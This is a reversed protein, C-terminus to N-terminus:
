RIGRSKKILRGAQNVHLTPQQKSELLNPAKIRSIIKAELDKQITDSLLFIKPDIGFWTALGIPDMARVSPILLIQIEKPASKFYVPDSFLSDETRFLKKRQPDYIIEMGKESESKNLHSLYITNEPNKLSELFTNDCVILKFKEEGVKIEAFGKGLREAVEPLTLILDYDSKNKLGQATTNYKIMAGEPDLDKLYPISVTTFREPKQGYYIAARKTQHDFCFEYHTGKDMAPHFVIHNSPNSVEVLRNNKIDVMFPIDVLKIFPLVREMSCSKFGIGKVIGKNL